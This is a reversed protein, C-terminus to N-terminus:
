GLLYAIFPAPICRVDEVRGVYARTAMVGTKFMARMTVSESAFGKEAYKGEFPVAGLSRGTFDVEKRTASRAYMVMFYEVDREPQVADLARTLAHGIQQESIVSTDAEPLHNSRLYALRAVLPDCLYIKSQADLNPTHRNGLKHCPWAM